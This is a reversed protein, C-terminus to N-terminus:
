DRSGPFQKKIWRRALASDNFVRMPRNPVALMGFVRELMKEKDPPVVLALPGIGGKDHMSRMRVGLAILEDAGMSTDAKAGDFLKRYTLMEDSHVSDLMADVEARTVDGEAVVVILRDEPDITWKVSM